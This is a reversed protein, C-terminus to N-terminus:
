QFSGYMIFYILEWVQFVTGYVDSSTAFIEHYGRFKCLSLVVKIETKSSFWFQGNIWSLLMSKPPVVCRLESKLVQIFVKWASTNCRCFWQFWFTFCPLLIADHKFEILLLNNILDGGFVIFNGSRAIITGVKMLKLFPTINIIGSSANGFFSLLAQHLYDKMTTTAWCGFENITKSWYCSRIVYDHYKGLGFVAPIWVFSVGSLKRTCM